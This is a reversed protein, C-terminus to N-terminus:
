IKPPLVERIGQLKTVDVESEVADGEKKDMHKQWFYHLGAMVLLGPISVLAHKGYTYALVDMGLERAIIVNDAGLPTPVITASTAIIAAATLTSMNAKRLAPYLTAMLIVALSSASPVVISLM